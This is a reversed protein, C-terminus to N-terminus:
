ADRVKDAAYQASAAVFRMAAQPCAPLYLHPYGAYLTANAHACDWTRNSLPKRAHFASGADTSDWYHFEHARLAEGANALLSDSSSTLEVYGFRGLKGTKFSRGAIVGVMDHAVGGDDEMTEHLYMFGGCEAITPMGDRISRAISARMSVNAELADAHLEPYGGGLYLGGVGDPLAADSLPSFSVLEAGLRRLLRLADEYYFCFAADHAVAIRPTAPLRLGPLAERQFSLAPAGQAIEVLADLDVSQELLDAVHDLKERLGEVEDAAVLGLHRSSLSMSADQPVYGLVPVGCEKEILEKLKPYFMPSARNLVVAAVHHEEELQLFGLIEAAISRAKGRADVVLVVPMETACALAWSSAESSAAIGDYFGMAGEVVTIDADRAGEGVLRRILEGGAFFLDLNRSPAGVVHTHFMPDIYDPGSKCAQVRLGRRMLARMLGCAFTTKGTNSSPASVLIRAAPCKM